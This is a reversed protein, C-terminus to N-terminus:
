GFSIFGDVESTLYFYSDVVVWILSSDLVSCAFALSGDTALGLVSGSALSSDFYSFGLYGAASSSLEEPREEELEPEPESEPESESELSLPSFTTFYFFGAWAAFGWFCIVGSCFFFSLSLFARMSFSFLIFSNSLYFFIEWFWCLFARM